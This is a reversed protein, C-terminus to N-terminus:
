NLFPYIQHVESPHLLTLAFPAQADKHAVAIVSCLRPATEPPFSLLAPFQMVSPWERAGGLSLRLAMLVDRVRKDVDAGDIQGAVSIGSDWLPKTIGVPVTMGLEHAVSSVDVLLGKEVAEERSTIPNADSEAAPEAESGAVLGDTVHPVTPDAEARLVEVRDPETGKSLVPSLPAHAEETPLANRIGDYVLRASASWKPDFPIGRFAAEAAKQEDHTLPRKTM